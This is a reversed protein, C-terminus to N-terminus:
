KAFYYNAIAKESVPVAILIARSTDKAGGKNSTGLLTVNVTDDEVTVEKIRIDTFGGDAKTIFGFVKYKKFDLGSIKAKEMGYDKLLKKLEGRDKASIEKEEKVASATGSYILDFEVADGYKVGKEIMRKKIDSTLISDLNNEKPGIVAGELGGGDKLGSGSSPAAKMEKAIGKTKARDAGLKWHSEDAEEDMEYYSGGAVMVKERTGDAKVYEQRYTLYRFTGESGKAIKTFIDVGESSLGSCGISNIVIYRDLAEEIEDEWRYDQEYFHPKADGILYITKETDKNRDWNIEHIAVHLAENVSEPLDGGGTARIQRVERLITDTDDTLKFIMTVYEDGRDRYLVLGFRVDPEPTGSEIESIMDVLSEKVVAIEDDMSGTTDILFVVDMRPAKKAWAQPTVAILVFFISFLLFLVKNKKM